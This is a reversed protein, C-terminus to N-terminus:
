FWKGYTVRRRIMKAAEGLLRYLGYFVFPAMLYEGGYAKYGREIFAQEMAWVLYLYTLGVTGLLRFVPLASKKLFERIIPWKDEWVHSLYLWVKSDEETCQYEMVFWMECMESEDPELEKRKTLGTLNGSLPLSLSRRTLATGPLLPKPIILLRWYERLKRGTKWRM